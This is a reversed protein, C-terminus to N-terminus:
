TKHGLNGVLFVLIRVSAGSVPKSNGLFENRM